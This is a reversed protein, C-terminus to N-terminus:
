GEVAEGCLFCDLCLCGECVACCCCLDACLGGGRMSMSMPEEAKPQETTMQPQVAMTPQQSMEMSETNTNAPM